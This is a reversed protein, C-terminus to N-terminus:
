RRLPPNEMNAQVPYVPWDVAFGDGPFVAQPKNWEFVLRGAMWMLEGHRYM